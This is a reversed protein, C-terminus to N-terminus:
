FENKKRGGIGYIRKGTGYSYRRSFVSLVGFPCFFVDESTSIIQYFQAYDSILSHIAGGRQAFRQNYLKFLVDDHSLCSRENAIKRM